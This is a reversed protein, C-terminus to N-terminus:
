LLSSILSSIHSMYGSCYGDSCNVDSKAQAPQNFWTVPLQAYQWSQLCTKIQHALENGAKDYISKNHFCVRSTAREWKQSHCTSSINSFSLSLSLSLPDRAYGLQKWRPKWEGCARRRTSPLMCRIHELPAKRVRHKAGATLLNSVEKEQIQIQQFFPIEHSLNSKSRQDSDLEKRKKHTIEWRMNVYAGTPILAHGVSSM